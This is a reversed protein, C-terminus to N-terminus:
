NLKQNTPLTQFRDIGYGAFKDKLDNKNIGSPTGPWWM